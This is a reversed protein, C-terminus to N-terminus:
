SITVQNLESILTPPKQLCEKSVKDVGVVSVDQLLNLTPERM